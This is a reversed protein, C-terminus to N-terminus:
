CSDPVPSVAKLGDGEHTDRDDGGPLTDRLPSLFLPVLPFVLPSPSPKRPNPCDSGFVDGNFLWQKTKACTLFMQEGKIHQQIVNQDFGCLRIIQHASHLKRRM